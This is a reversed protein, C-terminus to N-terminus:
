LGSWTIVTFVVELLNTDIVPVRSAPGAPPAVRSVKKPV